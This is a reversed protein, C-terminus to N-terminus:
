TTKPPAFAYKPNTIAHFSRWEHCIAARIAPFLVLRQDIGGATHPLGVGFITHHTAPRIDHPNNHIQLMTM